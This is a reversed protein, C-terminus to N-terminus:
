VPRAADRHHAPKGTHMYHNHPSASGASTQRLLGLPALGVPRRMESDDVVSPTRRGSMCDVGM